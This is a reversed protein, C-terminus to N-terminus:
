FFVVSSSLSSSGLYHIRTFSSKINIYAGGSYTNDLFWRLWSSYTLCAARPCSNQSFHYCYAANTLNCQTSESSVNTYMLWSGRVKGWGSASWTRPPSPSFHRTQRLQWQRQWTHCNNVNRNAIYMTHCHSTITNLRCDTYMNILRSVWVWIHKRIRRDEKGRPNSEGSRIVM